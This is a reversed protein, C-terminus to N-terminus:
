IQCKDAVGEVGQTYLFIRGLNRSQHLFSKKQLGIGICHTAGNKVARIQVFNTFMLCQTDGIVTLIVNKAGLTLNKMWRKNSTVKKSFGGTNIQLKSLKLLIIFIDNHSLLNTRCRKRQQNIHVIIFWCNCYLWVRQVSKQWSSSFNFSIFDLNFLLNLLYISLRSLDVTVVAIKACKKRM